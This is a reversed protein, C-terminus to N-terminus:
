KCDAPCSAHTEPCICNLDGSKCTTDQAQCIGDGCKDLCISLTGGGNASQAKVGQTQLEVQTGVGASNSSSSPQGASQEASSPPTSSTNLTNSAPATFYRYAFVGVALVAIVAIIIIVWLM